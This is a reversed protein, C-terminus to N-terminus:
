LPPLKGWFPGLNSPAFQVGGGKKSNQARPIAWRRVLARGKSSVDCAHGFDNKLFAEDFYRNSHSWRTESDQLSQVDSVEPLDLIKVDSESRFCDMPTAAATEDDPNLAFTAASTRVCDTIV